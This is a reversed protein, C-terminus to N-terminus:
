DLKGYEIARRAKMSEWHLRAADLLCENVYLYVECSGVSDLIATDLETTTRVIRRDATPAGRRILWDVATEHYYRIRGPNWTNWHQLDFLRLAGAIATARFFRQSM